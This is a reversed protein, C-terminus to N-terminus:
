PSTCKIRDPVRNKFYNGPESNQLFFKEKCIKKKYLILCQKGADTYEFQGQTTDIHTGNDLEVRGGMRGGGNYIAIWPAVELVPEM